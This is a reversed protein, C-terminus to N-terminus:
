RDASPRDAFAGATGISVPETEAAAASASAAILLWPLIRRM